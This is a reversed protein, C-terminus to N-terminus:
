EYGQMEKRLVKILAYYKAKVTSVPMGMRESIESFTYGERAKMIFINKSDAEAKNLLSKIKDGAVKNIVADDVSEMVTEDDGMVETLLSEKYQRSRRFDIVKNEAIKSVWTKFSGKDSDYQALSRLVLIFTEQTLDMAQEKDNVKLYIIKYVTKYHRELLTEAAFKDNDNVIRDVLYDDTELLQAAWQKVLSQKTTRMGIIEM